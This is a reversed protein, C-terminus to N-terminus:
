EMGSQMSDQPSQGTDGTRGYEILQIAFRLFLLAFGVFFALKPPWEPLDLLGAYFNGGILASWFEGWGWYAVAASVLLGVLLTLVQLASQTRVPLYNYLIDVSIHADRRQAYSLSFAIAAVMLMEIWIVSDSVGTGFYRLFINTNEILGIAIIAFTALLFLMGELVGVTRELVRLLADMM